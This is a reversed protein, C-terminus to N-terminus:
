SSSGSGSGPVGNFGSGIRIRIRIWLESVSGDQDPDVIRGLNIYDKCRCSKLFPEPHEKEELKSTAAPVQRTLRLGSARAEAQSGKM